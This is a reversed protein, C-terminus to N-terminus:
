LSYKALNEDTIRPDNLLLELVGTRNKKYAGELGANPDVRPDSLLIQVIEIYGKECAHQILDNDEVTPDVRPDAIMLRIAEIRENAVAQWTSLRFGHQLAKKTNIRPDDLLMRLIDIYEDRCPICLLSLNSDPFTVRPDNLLVRVVDTRGWACAIDLTNSKNPDVRTDNLLIQVIDAHGNKSARDLCDTNYWTPDILPITLLCKVSDMYGKSCCEAFTNNNVLKFNYLEMWIRKWNVTIYNTSYGIKTEVKAKWYANSQYVQQIPLTTTVNLAAMTSDDLTALISSLVDVNLIDMYTKTTLLYM